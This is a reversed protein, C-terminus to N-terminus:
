REENAPLFGGEALVADLEDMEDTSDPAAADLAEPAVPAEQTRTETRTAEAPGTGADLADGSHRPTVSAGADEVPAAEDAPAAEAEPSPADPACPRKPVLEFMRAVADAATQAVEERGSEEEPSSPLLVHRLAEDVVKAREERRSEVRSHAAELALDGPALEPDGRVNWSDLGAIREKAAALVEAVLPEDDPRARVLVASRAEFLKVSDLLLQELLLKRDRDLVFGTGKEVCMALLACLDEKWLDFIRDCQAHVASVVSGATEGMVVRFHELDGQAHEIGAAYGQAHGAEKAGAHRQRAEENLRASEEQLQAAEEQLRAAEDRLRGQEALLEAAQWEAEERLRAAEAQAEELLAAGNRGAEALIAQAQEKARQQGRDLYTEEQDRRWYGGKNPAVIALQDLNVERHTGMFITGWNKPTEDAAMDCM